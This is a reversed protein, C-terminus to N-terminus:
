LRPGSSTRHHARHELGTHLAKWHRLFARDMGTLLYIYVNFLDTGRRGCSGERLPKWLPRVEAKALMGGCMWHFSFQAYSHVSSVAALRSSVAKWNRPGRFRSVSWELSVQMGM